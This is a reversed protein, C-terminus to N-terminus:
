LSFGLLKESIINIQDLSGRFAWVHSTDNV